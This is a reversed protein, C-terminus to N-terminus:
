KAPQYPNDSRVAIIRYATPACQLAIGGRRIPTLFSCHYLNLQNNESPNALM